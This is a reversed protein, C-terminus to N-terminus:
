FDRYEDSSAIDIGVHPIRAPAPTSSGTAAATWMTGDAYHSAGTHTHTANMIIKEVPFGPILKATKTRVDDVLGSRIVVLDASLFVVLDKGDDILLANVQLPDRVGKSIRMHFQGPINVPKDTSIDRTAWGIKLESM